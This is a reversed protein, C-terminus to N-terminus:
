FVTRHINQSLQGVRAFRGRICCTVRISRSVCRDRVVRFVVCSRPSAPSFKRCARGGKRRLLLMSGRQGSIRFGTGSGSLNLACARTNCPSSSRDTGARVSVFLSNGTRGTVGPHRRLALCGSAGHACIISISSRGRRVVGNIVLTMGLGVTGRRVQGKVTNPSGNKRNPSVMIAFGGTGLVTTFLVLAFFM